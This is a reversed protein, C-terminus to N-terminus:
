EDVSGSLQSSTRSLAQEFLASMHHKIVRKRVTMIRNQIYPSMFVDLFVGLHDCLALKKVTTSISLGKIIIVIDLTHGQVHQTRSFPLLYHM